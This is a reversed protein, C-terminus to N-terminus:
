AVLFAVAVVEDHKLMGLLRVEPRDRVLDAVAFQTERRGFPQLLMEAEGGSRHRRETQNVIPIVTDPHDEVAVQFLRLAQREVGVDVRAREDNRTVIELPEELRAPVRHLVHRDSRSDARTVQRTVPGGYVAPM